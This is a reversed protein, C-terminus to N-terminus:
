ARHSLASARRGTTRSSELELRVISTERDGATHLTVWELAGARAISATMTVLEFLEHPERGVEVFAIPAKREPNATEKAARDQFADLAAQQRGYWRAMEHELLRRRWWTRIVRM